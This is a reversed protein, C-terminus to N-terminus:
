DELIQKNIFTLIEKKTDMVVYFFAIKTLKICLFM